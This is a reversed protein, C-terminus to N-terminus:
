NVGERLLEAARSRDNRDGGPPWRDGGPINFLYFFYVYISWAKNGCPGDIYVRDITTISYIKSIQRIPYKFFFWPLIKKSLLLSLILSSILGKNFYNRSPLPFYYSIYISFFLKDIQSHNVTVNKNVKPRVILQFNQALRQSILELYVERDSVPYKLNYLKICYSQFLKPPSTTKSLM